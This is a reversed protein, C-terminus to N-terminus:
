PRAQEEDDLPRDASGSEVPEAASVVRPAEAVLSTLLARMETALLDADVLTPDTALGINLAGTWSLAGLSLAAGPALPLIPYVRYLPIGVFNLAPTPGPINSVVAHLFASGYVTRAFWDAMPEPLLRLGTAMVFRSAIARTPRRLRETRRGVEILLEEFPRDDVPVPVMVAATVNGEAVSDPTRVMLPVSLKLEGGARAVTQPAARELARATVAILLDTVRTHHAAVVRRVDDMPLDLAGFGRDASGAGLSRAGGDSALQALGVTVAVLRQLRGPGKGTPAPLATPPQFLSLSHSVIGYGDGIAHHALYILSSAGPATDRVVAVRWLPRDRPMPQEAFDAVARRLGALGDSSTLEIVHWDLDIEGAEIWRPRRWRRAPALRMRFLPLQALGAGVMTRAEAMTPTGDGSAELVIMGGAHQAAGTGEVHLFFADASPVVEGVAGPADYRWHGYAVGLTIPIIAAVADLLFHNATAMVVFLTLLVHVASLLQVGWDARKGSSTTLRALVVSVWLAWGIHLSPMAALQNAADIVGSGWSGVTGGRSVTDVFGLDPLMRPPATPYVAFTGIAILNMVVFSDRTPKWLDPRRAIVWGMLLLASLIYTYAYEYNALTSLVHHPALWENLTHEIDIHLRQELTFIARGHQLAATRRADNDMADVLLYIGFLVLGTAFQRWLM